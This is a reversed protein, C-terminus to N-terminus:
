KLHFISRIIWFFCLYITKLVSLKEFDRYVIWHYKILSIKNSSISHIGVRHSSLIEDLGYLTGANKIVKLWMIYDNRKKISPIFFKGLKECNYIVTSNGPCRYLLGEYNVTLANITIGLDESNEDIKNYSTCSFLYGNKEMFAIQKKLKNKNWIDDSDLFAVYRGTAIKIANNRSIAAGANKDNKEVKIRNDTVAFNKIIKLTSDISCDDIIILEWDSYTQQQVSMIAESIYKECNYAPMIISVKGAM